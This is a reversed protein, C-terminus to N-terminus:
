PTIPGDNVLAPDITKKRTPENANVLTFTYEWRGRNRNHNCISYQKDPQPKANVPHSGPHGHSFQSAPDGPAPNAPNKPRFVVANAPFLWGNPATWIVQVRQTTSVRTDGPDTPENTKPDLPITIKIPAPTSRCVAPKAGSTAADAAGAVGVSVLYLAAAQWVITKM